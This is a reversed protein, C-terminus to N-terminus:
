KDGSQQPPIGRDKFLRDAYEQCENRKCVGAVHGQDTIYVKTSTDWMIPANCAWCHMDHPIGRKSCDCQKLKSM